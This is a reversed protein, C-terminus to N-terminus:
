ENEEGKALPHSNLYIKKLREDSVHTYIETTAIDSHGLLEQVVRLDAGGELMGTAYSHRLKHPSVHKKISTLNMQRNLMEEVYKPNLRNGLHNIFFFGKTNPKNLWLPRITTSYTGMMKLSIDPIPIVREKDGKGILKLLHDEFNIDNVKLNCVESVRLGLGYIVELITHHFYDNHDEDNFTKFLEEIESHSLYIPLRKKAKNVSIYASVDNLDYRFDLFKHLNRIVVKYHNISTDAHTKAYDSIADEIINKDVKAIDELGISKLYDLYVNLAHQYSIITKKAKKDQINLYHFYENIAESVQM